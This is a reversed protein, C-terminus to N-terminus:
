KDILQDQIFKVETETNVQNKLMDLKRLIEKLFDQHAKTNPHFPKHAMAIRIESWAYLFTKLAKDAYCDIFKQWIYNEAEESPHIMDAKYFRYDRLDDVMIEYAPFYDVDPFSNSISHCALRLTSKSVSNLVLTDKIHRVPSVTLVIKINPNLSRLAEYMAEFSEIIKKQTLLSKTFNQSPMKHCNAVVAENDSRQYVWATGYTIILWEAAKLFNHTSRIKESLVNKLELASLASLESHFDYNLFVQNNQLFTNEAPTTNEIAYKLVRHIAHPNYIAGFPNADTIIKNSKLRQGMVDAFCSGLTLIRTKLGLFHTSPPINVVTRFTNM